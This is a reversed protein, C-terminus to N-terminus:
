TAQWHLATHFFCLPPVSLSTPALDGVEFTLREIIVDDRGVVVLQLAEAAGCEVWPQFNQLVRFIYDNLSPHRSMQVAVGFRRQRAFVSAPYVRREFLIQHLAIELVELVVSVAEARVNDVIPSPVMSKRAQADSQRGQSDDRAAADEEPRGAGGHAVVAPGHVSRRIGGSDM